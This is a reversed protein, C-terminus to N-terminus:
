TTMLWVALQKVTLKTMTIQTQIGIANATHANKRWFEMELLTLKVAWPKVLMATEETGDASKLIASWMANIMTSHIRNAGQMKVSRATVETKNASTKGVTQSVSEMGLKSEIARPIQILQACCM